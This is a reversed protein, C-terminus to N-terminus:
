KKRKREIELVNNTEKIELDLIGLMEILKRKLVNQPHTIKEISENRDFGGNIRRMLEEVYKALEALEFCKKHIDVLEQKELDALNKEFLRWM